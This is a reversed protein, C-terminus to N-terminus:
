KVEYSGCYHYARNATDGTIFNLVLRDDAVSAEIAGTDVTTAAGTVGLANFVGSADEVSAFNSAIPLSLELATFGTATPDITIRGSFHVINGVRSYHASGPTAAACNTGLTATPTWRGAVVGSSDLMSYPVRTTM